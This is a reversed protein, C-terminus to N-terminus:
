SGASFHLPIADFECTKLTPSVVQLKLFHLLLCPFGSLISSMVFHTPYANDPSFPFRYSCGSAAPDTGRCFLVFPLLLHPQTVRPHTFVADDSPCRSSPAAVFLSLFRQTSLLQQSVPVARASRSVSGGPPPHRRRGGASPQVSATLLLVTVVTM